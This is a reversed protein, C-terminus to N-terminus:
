PVAANRRPASHLEGKEDSLQSLLQDIRRKESLIRSSLVIRLEERLAWLDDLSMGNLNAQPPHHARQHPPVSAETTSM